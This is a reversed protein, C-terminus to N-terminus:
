NDASKKRRKGIKLDKFAFFLWVAYISLVILEIISFLIIILVFTSQRQENYLNFDIYVTDESRADVILNYRGFFNVGEVYSISLLNGKGISEYIEKSSYNGFVGLSPFDYRINDSFIRCQYEKFVRVYEINDITVISTQCNEKRIPKAENLVVILMLAIVAHIILFSIIFRKIFSTKKINLNTKRM